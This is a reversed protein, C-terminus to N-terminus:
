QVPPDHRQLATDIEQREGRSLLDLHRELLQDDKRCVQLWEIQGILREEPADRVFNFDLVVGDGFEASQELSRASRESATKIGLRDMVQNLRVVHRILTLQTAAM